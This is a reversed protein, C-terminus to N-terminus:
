SAHNLKGLLQSLDIAKPKVLNLLKRTEQKIKQIKEGPLKIEMKSSNIAFGLFELNQTPTIVSKPFNIIFELNELLFILGATHERALTSTEAMILIDDIYIIVRVSQSHCDSTTHDQYLGMYRVVSWIPLCDFQYTQGQWRFHLLRRHHLAIPIM